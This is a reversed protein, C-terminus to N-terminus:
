GLGRSILPGFRNAVALPLKSWVKVQLSFKPNAPSADRAKAGDAVREYYTLVSPEFGWNKKFAAAGTGTKSRGFDFRKCGRTRAHRMLEFYMRDNARLGRAARTGGGWYPYVTGKWYLSLVSSVAVGGSRVILLDAAKGFEKLVESFLSKPFVPTGLNRVSEAYVAYHEAQERADSGVVVELHNELAKRVEARQKRPIALLEADDDEALDRVFGIYRTTDVDWDPGPLPGGRVEMVPCSLKGALTWAAEALEAAVRPNDALVGGGVGFAASVLARGFLASHVETLPMVGVLQGNGGEALLYHNKQGCGRAVAISWAPLHFPTGDAHDHVFAGIRAREIADDLDAVRLGVPRALMPANM